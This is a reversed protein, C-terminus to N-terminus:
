LRLVRGAGSSEALRDDYVEQPFFDGKVPLLTETHTRRTSQMVKKRDPVTRFAGPPEGNMTKKQWTAM